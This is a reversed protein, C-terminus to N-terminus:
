PPISRIDPACRGASADIAEPLQEELKAARRDRAIRLKFFPVAGCVAAGVIAALLSSVLVGCVLGGAIGAPDLHHRASTAARHRRSARDNAGPLGDDAPERAQAAAAYARASVESPARIVPESRRAGSRHRCPTAESDPSQPESRWIGPDDTGAGAPIGLGAVLSLFIFVGSSM